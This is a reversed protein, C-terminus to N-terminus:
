LNSPLTIYLIHLAYVPNWRPNNLPQYICLLLPSYQHALLFPINLGFLFSQGNKLALGKQKKGNKM